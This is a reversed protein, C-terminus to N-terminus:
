KKDKYVITAYEVYHSSTEPTITISVVRDESLKALFENVLDEIKKSRQDSKIFKVRMSDRKTKRDM